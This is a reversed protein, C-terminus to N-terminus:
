AWIVWIHHKQDKRSAWQVQNWAVWAAYIKKQSIPSNWLCLSDLTSAHRNWQLVAGAEAEAHFMPFSLVRTEDTEDHQVLWKLKHAGLSAWHVTEWKAKSYWMLTDNQVCFNNCPRGLPFPPLPLNMIYRQEGARRQREKKRGGQLSCSIRGM